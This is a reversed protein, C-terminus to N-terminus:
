FESLVDKLSRKLAFVSAAIVFVLPISLRKPIAIYVGTSQTPTLVPPDPVSLSPSSLFIQTKYQEMFANADKESPREKHVMKEEGTEYGNRMYHRLEHLLTQNMEAIDIHGRAYIYVSCGNNYCGVIKKSPFDQIRGERMYNHFRICLREIDQESVGQQLLFATLRERDVHIRRLTPYEYYVRM